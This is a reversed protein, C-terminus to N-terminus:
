QEIHHREKALADLVGNVFSASSDSGFRRAIEIAEDMIVEPPTQSEFLLEFVAIRLVNRDVRALRDVKWHRSTTAIQEDIAKRNSTVGLVLERAREQARPPLSFERVIAVFTALVKAPDIDSCAEAAFLVQLAAERSQRRPGRITM